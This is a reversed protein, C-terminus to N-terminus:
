TEPTLPGSDSNVGFSLSCSIAFSIPATDDHLYPAFSADRVRYLIRNRHNFSLPSIM